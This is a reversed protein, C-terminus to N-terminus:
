LAIYGVVEVPADPANDGHPEADITTEVGDARKADWCL